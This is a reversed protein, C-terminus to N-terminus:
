ELDEALVSTQERGGLARAQDIVREASADFRYGHCNPCTSVREAVISECGECMKYREPANIIEQAKRSRDEISMREYFVRATSAFLGWRARFQIGQLHRLAM